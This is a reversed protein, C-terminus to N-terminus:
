KRGGKLKMAAELLRKREALEKEQQHLKAWELLAADESSVVRRAGRKNAFLEILVDEEVAADFAMARMFSIDRTPAGREAAQSTHSPAVFGNLTGVNIKEGLYISMRAAIEERVIGKSAARKMADAMTAAIEARCGMAGPRTTSPAFLDFTLNM